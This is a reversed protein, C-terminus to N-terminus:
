CYSFASLAGIAGVCAICAVFVIAGGTVGILSLVFGATRIGGQFGLRKSKSAYVLGLVGRVPEFCM